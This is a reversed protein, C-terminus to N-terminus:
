YSLKMCCCLAKHLTAHPVNVSRLAILNNFLKSRGIARTIKIELEESIHIDKRHRESNSNYFDVGRIRVNCVIISNHRNRTIKRALIMANYIVDINGTREDDLIQFLDIMRETDNDGILDKLKSM